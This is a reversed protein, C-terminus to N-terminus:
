RVSPREGHQRLRACPPVAMSAFSSLLELQSPDKANVTPPFAASVSRTASRGLFRSRAVNGRLTVQIENM